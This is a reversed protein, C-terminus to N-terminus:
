RRPPGATSSGPWGHSPSPTAATAFRSGTGTVKRGIRRAARRCSPGGTAPRSRGLPYDHAPGRRVRRLPRGPFGPVDLRRRLPQPRRGARCRHQLLRIRQGALTRGLHGRAPRRGPKRHRLYLGAALYFVPVMGYRESLYGGTIPALVMGLPVSAYVLSFTYSLNEPSARDVIYAQLAPNGMYSLSILFVGPLLGQWTHAWIYVLPGPVALWWTALMIWRRDLRDALYGGPLAAATAAMWGVSTLLGFSVPDAGLSRVYAPWINSYMGTGFSFLLISLFLYRLDRSLIM